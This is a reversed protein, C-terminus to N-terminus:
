TGFQAIKHEVSWAVDPGELGSQRTKLEVRHTSMWQRLSSPIMAYDPVLHVFILPRGAPTYGNCRESMPSSSPVHEPLELLCAAPSLLAKAV